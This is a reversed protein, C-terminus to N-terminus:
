VATTKRPIILNISLSRRMKASNAAAIRNEITRSHLAGDDQALIVISGGFERLASIALLTCIGWRQNSMVTPFRKITEHYFGAVGFAECLNDLPRVSRQRLLDFVQWVKRSDL